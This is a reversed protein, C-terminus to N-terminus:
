FYGGQMALMSKLGVLGVIHQMTELLVQEVIQLLINHGSRRLVVQCLDHQGSDKCLTAKCAVQQAATAAQKVIM